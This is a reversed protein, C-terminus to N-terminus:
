KSHFSVDNTLIAEFEQRVAEIDAHSPASAALMLISAGGDILAVLEENGLSTNSLRFLAAADKDADGSNHIKISGLAEIKLAPNKAKLKEQAYRTLFAEPTEQASKAIMDGLLVAKFRPSELHGWRASTFLSTGAFVSPADTKVIKWEKPFAFNFNAGPAGAPAQTIKVQVPPNAAASAIASGVADNLKAQCDVLMCDVRVAASIGLSWVTPSFAIGVACLATGIASTALRERRFALVGCVLGPISALGLFPLWSVAGLVISTVGLIPRPTSPAAVVSRIPRAFANSM